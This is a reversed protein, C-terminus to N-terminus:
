QEAVTVYCEAPEVGASAALESVGLAIGAENKPYDGQWTVGGVSISMTHCDSNRILTVPTM